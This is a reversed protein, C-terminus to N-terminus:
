RRCGPWDGDERGPGVAPVDVHAQAIAPALWHSLAAPSRHEIGADPSTTFFSFDCSMSATIPYSLQRQTMLERGPRLGVDLAQDLDALEAARITVPM